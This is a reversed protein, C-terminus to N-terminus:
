EQATACHATPRPCNPANGVVLVVRVEPSTPCASVYGIAGPTSRVFLLVAQESEVVFPPYVGNFYMERWYNEMAEPEQGLVCLSFARRLPQAAPLNVPQIRAAGRWSVQKRRFMFATAERTVTQAPVDASVIVAFAPGSTALAQTAVLLLAVM